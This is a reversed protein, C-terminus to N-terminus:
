QPLTRIHSTLRGGHHIHFALAIPSDTCTWSEEADAQEWPLAATSAIGPACLLPLGAFTTGAATHAHGCLVGAVRPHRRVVQELRDAERLRIADIYPIGLEVPPHHLAILAATGRSEALTADLWDLTSEELRGEPRGPISSDCMLLHVDGIHRAQNVPASGKGPQGLLVDRFEERVDHNGPCVLVPFHEYLPALVERAQLYEAETGRDAIDGTIVVADVTGPLGALYSVVRRVREESERSGDLHLDSLQALVTM